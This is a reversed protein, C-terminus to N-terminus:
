NTTLKRLNAIRWADESFDEQNPTLGLATTQRIKQIEQCVALPTACTDFVDPKNGNDKGGVKLMHDYNEFYEDVRAWRGCYPCVIKQVKNKPTRKNWYMPEPSTFDIVDGQSLEYTKLIIMHKCREIQPM